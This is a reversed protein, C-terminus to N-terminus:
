DLLSKFLSRALFFDPVFQTGHAWIEFPDDTTPVTQLDKGHAFVGWPVCHEVTFPGKERLHM